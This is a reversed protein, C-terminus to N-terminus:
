RLEIKPISSGKKPALSQPLKDWFLGQWGNSITLEVIYEVQEDTHQEFKKILEDLHSESKIPKKIEARFLIFKKLVSGKKPNLKNFRKVKNNLNLKTTPDLPAKGEGKGQGKGTGKVRKKGGHAERGKTIATIRKECSPITLMKTSPNPIYQILGKDRLLELITEIQNANAKWKRSWSEVDIKVKNECFHAEDILERYLGREELTLDFVKDDSQWDRVWFTYGRGEKKSISM